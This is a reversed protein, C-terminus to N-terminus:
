KEKAAPKLHSEIRSSLFLYVMPLGATAFASPKEFGFAYIILLWCCILLWGASKRAIRAVAVASATPTIVAPAVPVPSPSPSDIVPATSVTELEDFSLDIQSLMVPPM